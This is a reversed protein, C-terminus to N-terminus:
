ECSKPVDSVKGVFVFLAELKYLLDANSFRGGYSPYFSLQDKLTFPGKITIHRLTFLCPAVTANKTGHLRDM